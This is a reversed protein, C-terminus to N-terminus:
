CAVSQVKARCTITSTSKLVFGHSGFKIVTTKKLEELDALFRRRGKLATASLGATASVPSPVDYDEFDDVDMAYDDEMGEDDSMESINKNVTSSPAISM